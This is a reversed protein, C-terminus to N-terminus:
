SESGVAFTDNLYGALGETHKNIPEIVSKSAYVIIPRNGQYSGGVPNELVPLSSTCKRSLERPVTLLFSGLLNVTLLESRQGLEPVDTRGRFRAIAGKLFSLPEVLEFSPCGPASAQRANAWV